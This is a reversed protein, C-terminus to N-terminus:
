LDLTHVSEDFTNSRVSLIIGVTVSLHSEEIATLVMCARNPVGLFTPLWGVVNVYCSSM